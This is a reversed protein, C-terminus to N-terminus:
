LIYGIRKKTVRDRSIGRVFRLNLNTSETASPPNPNSHSSQLSCFLVPRILVHWTDASTRNTGSAQNLQM